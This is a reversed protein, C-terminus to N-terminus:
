RAQNWGGPQHQATQWGHCSACLGRGHAPDNPDMGREVLVRRDLPWHDAVTSPEPCPQGHHAPHDPTCQCQPHNRLVGPRFKSEHRGDYGRQRATGRKRDAAARHEPCHSHGAPVPEPCGPTPCPHMARPM